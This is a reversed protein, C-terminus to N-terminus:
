MWRLSFLMQYQEDVFRLMPKKNQMVIEAGGYERYLWFHFKEGAGRKSPVNRSNPHLAYAADREKLKCVEVWAKAGAPHFPM